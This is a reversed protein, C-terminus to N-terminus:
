NEKKELAAWTEPGVIGDQRLGAAKQAKRVAKETDPGFDGDAEVGLAKQLVVVDEGRDGRRLVPRGPPPEAVAPSPPTGQISRLVAVVRATLAVREKEANAPRAAEPNGRNVGRSVAVADDRDAWKNLNHKEWYWLSAAFGVTKDNEVLEPTKVLDIEPRGLLERVYPTAAAYNGRGTLQIPGRGAFRRGDGPRTNGLDARGEYEVGSAYERYTKFYDSEVGCQAIFHGVRLVTNLVPAAGPSHLAELFPGLIDSRARPFLPAIRSQTPFILMM